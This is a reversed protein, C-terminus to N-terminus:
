LFAKVMDGKEVADLKGYAYALSIEDVVKLVATNTWHDTYEAAFAPRAAKKCRVALASFQVGCHVSRALAAFQKRFAALAAPAAAAEDALSACGALVRPELKVRTAKREVNEDAACSKSVGKGAGAADDTKIPDCGGDAASKEFPTSWFSQLEEISIGGM